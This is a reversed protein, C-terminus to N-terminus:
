YNLKKINLIKFADKLKREVMICALYGDVYKRM